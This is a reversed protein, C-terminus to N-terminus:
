ECISSALMKKPKLKILKEEVRRWVNSISRLLKSNINCDEIVGENASLGQAQLERIKKQCALIYNRLLNVDVDSIQTPKDQINTELYQLLDGFDKRFQDLDSSVPANKADVHAPKKELLLEYNTLLSSIEDLFSILEGHNADSYNTLYETPNNEITNLLERLGNINTRLTSAESETLSTLNGSQDLLKRDVNEFLRIIRGHLAEKVELNKPQLLQEINVRSFRKEAPVPIDFGRKENM